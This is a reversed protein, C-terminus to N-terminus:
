CPTRKGKLQPRVALRKMEAVQAPNEKRWERWSHHRLKHRLWARVDPKQKYSKRRRQLCAKCREAGSGTTYLHSGCFYLGCGGDECISGCLHALGRDIEKRCKPHECICPVGYGIDRDREYDYGIAWGM